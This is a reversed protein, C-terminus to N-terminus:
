ESKFASGAEHEVELACVKLWTQLARDLFGDDPTTGASASRDGPVSGEFRGVSDMMGRLGALDIKANPITPTAVQFISYSRIAIVAGPPHLTVRQIL